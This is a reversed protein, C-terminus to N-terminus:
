VKGGGSSLLWEDKLESNIAWLIVIKMWTWRERWGQKWGCWAAMKLCLWESVDDQSWSHKCLIEYRGMWYNNLYMLRSLPPDASCTVATATGSCCAPLEAELSVHLVHGSASLLAFLENILILKFISVSLWSLMQGVWSFSFYVM